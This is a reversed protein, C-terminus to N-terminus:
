RRCYCLVQTSNSELVQPRCVFSLCNYYATVYVYSNFNATSGQTGSSDRIELGDTTVVVYKSGWEKQTESLVHRINCNTKRMSIILSERHKHFVPRGGPGFISITARIVKIQFAKNSKSSQYIVSNFGPYKAPLAPIASLTSSSSSGSSQDLNVKATARSSPLPEGEVELM